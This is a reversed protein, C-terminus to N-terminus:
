KTNKGKKLGPPLELSPSPLSGETTKLYFASEQFAHLSVFDVFAVKKKTIQQFLLLLHPHSGKRKNWQIHSWPGGQQTKM